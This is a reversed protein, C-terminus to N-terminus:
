KEVPRKQVRTQEQKQLQPSNEKSNELESPRSIIIAPQKFAKMLLMTQMLMKQQALMQQRLLEITAISKGDRPKKDEIQPTSHVEFSPRRTPSLDIVQAKSVDSSVQQKIPQTKIKDLSLSRGRTPRWFSYQPRQVVFMPRQSLSGNGLKDNLKRALAKYDVPKNPSAPLSKIGPPNSYSSNWELRQSQHRRVGMKKVASVKEISERSKSRRMIPNLQPSLPKLSRVPKYETQAHSRDTTSGSSAKYAFWTSNPSVNCSKPLQDLSTAKHNLPELKGSSRARKIVPKSPSALSNPLLRKLREVSTRSDLTNSHGGPVVFPSRNMSQRKDTGQASPYREREIKMLADWPEEFILQEAKNMKNVSEKNMKVFNLSYRRQVNKMPHKSTELKWDVNYWKAKIKKLQNAELSTLSRSRQIRAPPYKRSHHFNYEWSKEIIKTRNTVPASPANDSFLSNYKPEPINVLSNPASQLPMLTKKKPIKLPSTDTGGNQFEKQNFDPSILDYKDLDLTEKTGRHGFLLKKKQTINNENSGRYVYSMRVTRPDLKDVSMDVFVGQRTPLVEEPMKETAPASQQPNIKMLNQTPEPQPIKLPQVVIDFQKDMELYNFNTIEDEDTLEEPEIKQDDLLIIEDYDKPNAIVDTEWRDCRCFFEFILFFYIM